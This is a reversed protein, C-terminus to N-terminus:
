PQICILNASVPVIKPKNGFPNKFLSLRGNISERIFRKPFLVMKIFYFKNDRISCLMKVVVGGDLLLLLWIDLM